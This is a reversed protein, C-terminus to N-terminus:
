RPIIQGDFLPKSLLAQKYINMVVLEILRTNGVKKKVKHEHGDIEYM